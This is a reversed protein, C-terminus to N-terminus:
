TRRYWYTEGNDVVLKVRLPLGTHDNKYSSYKVEDFAVVKKHSEECRKCEAKDDYNTHCIECQYLTKEKM